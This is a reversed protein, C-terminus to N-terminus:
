GGNSARDYDSLWEAHRSVDEKKRFQNQNQKETRQKVLSDGDGRRPVQPNSPLSGADNSSAGKRNGNTLNAGKKGGESQKRKREELHLRYDDLEPCSYSGNSEVFFSKVRETLANAVEHEHKGLYQALEKPDAPVQVNEWCELRMTDLLGRESFAMLRFRKDALRSAAYEQFAPPKRNQM